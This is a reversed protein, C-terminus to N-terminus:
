VVVFSILGVVSVDIDAVLDDGVRHPCGVADRALRNDGAPAGCKLMPQTLSGCAQSEVRLIPCRGPV